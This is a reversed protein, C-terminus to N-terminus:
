EKRYSHGYEATLYADWLHDDLLMLTTITEVPLFANKPGHRGTVAMAWRANPFVHYYRVPNEGAHGLKFGHNRELEKVVEITVPLSM